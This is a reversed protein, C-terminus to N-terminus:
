TVIEDFSRIVDFGVAPAEADRDRVCLLTQFGASRAAELESVVDSVFLLSSPAVGIGASIQRYSEPSRKPGVGTDFYYNIMPTLDGHNSHSFLLRQGLVSGSSYISITTGDHKWREFATRVDPYVVGRLTGDDYGRKWVHGQILKLGPSKRDRDMMWELYAVLSEHLAEPTDDDWPPAAEGRMADESHEARLLRAAERVEPNNAHERLYRRLHARAYPFLADYVFAIPTTTGEVDLVVGTVKGRATPTL